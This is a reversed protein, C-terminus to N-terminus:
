REQHALVYELAAIYKQCAPSPELLAKAGLSGTSRTLESILELVQAQNIGM